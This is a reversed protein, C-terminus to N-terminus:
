LDQMRQAFAADWVKDRDEDFVLKSEGPAVVWDRRALEGELQGPAWGAYGFAILSKHPGKGNGIDRLIERSSTMALRTNVDITTPQHYDTSHVVFGIDPQVPGGAFIQVQGTATTDKEGLTELLAALPREGVPRNVVIGFAGDKDHRVMLIVTNAFRPDGMSPSAVLLQGTLSATGTTQAAAQPASDLCLATLAALAAATTAAALVPRKNRRTSLIPSM